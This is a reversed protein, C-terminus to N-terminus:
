HATPTADEHMGDPHAGSDFPDDPAGSLREAARAALNPDVSIDEEPPLDDGAAEHPPEDRTGVAGKQYQASAAAPSVMAAGEALAPEPAAPTAFWTQRCRVCRVSRGADGLSTSAVDYSTQCNPCVILM